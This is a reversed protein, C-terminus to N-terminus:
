RRTAAATGHSLSPRRTPWGPQCARSEAAQRGVTSGEPCSPGRAGGPPRPRARGSGTVRWGLGCPRSDCALRGARRGLRAPGPGAGHDSSWGHRDDIMPDSQYQNSPM